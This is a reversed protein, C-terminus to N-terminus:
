LSITYWLRHSTIQFSGVNLITTMLTQYSLSGHRSDIIVPYPLTSSIMESSPFFCFAYVERCDGSGRCCHLQRELLCSYMPCSTWALSSVGVGVWAGLTAVPLEWCWGITFQGCHNGCWTLASGPWIHYRGWITGFVPSVPQHQLLPTMGSSFNCTGWLCGTHIYTCGCHLCTFTGLGM